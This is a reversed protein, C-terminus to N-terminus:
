DERTADHMAAVLGSSGNLEALSAESLRELLEDGKPTITLYIRRRDAPSPERSVLGGRVLRETLEVASHHKILLHAALEGITIASQGPYGGKISLLAQHQQPALGVRRANAETVSVFRRLALRIAALREYHAQSLKPGRPL